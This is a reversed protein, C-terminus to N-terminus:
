VPNLDPSKVPWPLVQIEKSELWEKTERSVHISANDQQFVYGAGYISTAAAILYSELVECYKTSNMHSEVFALESKGHFCFAGWVM